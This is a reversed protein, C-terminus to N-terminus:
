RAQLPDNVMVRNMILRKDNEHDVFVCSMSFNIEYKIKRKNRPLIIIISVVDRSRYFLELMMLNKQNFELFNQLNRNM